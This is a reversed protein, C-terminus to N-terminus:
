NLIGSGKWIFITWHINIQPKPTAHAQKDLQNDLAFNKPEKTKIMDKGSEREYKGKGYNISQM